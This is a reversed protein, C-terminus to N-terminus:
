GCTAVNTAAFRLSIVTVTPSEPTLVALANRFTKRPLEAPVVNVAGATCAAFSCTPSGPEAPVDFAAAPSVVRLANVNLAAADPDILRVDDGAAHVLALVVSVILWMETHSEVVAPLKWYEAANVAECAHTDVFVNVSVDSVTESV